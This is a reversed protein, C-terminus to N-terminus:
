ATEYYVTEFYARIANKEYYLKKSSFVSLYDM